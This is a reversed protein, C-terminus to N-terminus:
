PYAIARGIDPHKKRGLPLASSGQVSVGRGPYDLLGLGWGGPFAGGDAHMPSPM